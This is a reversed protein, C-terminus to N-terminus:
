DEIVVEFGERTPNATYLHMLKVLQEQYYHSQESAIADEESDWLAVAVAKGTERNMFLNLRRFGKQEKAAPVMSERYIDLAEDIKDIRVKITTMRAFM